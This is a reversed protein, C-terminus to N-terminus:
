EVYNSVTEEVSCYQQILERNTPTDLWGLYRRSFNAPLDAIPIIKVGDSIAAKVADSDTKYINSSDDRQVELMGTGEYDVVLYGSKKKVVRRAMRNDGGQKERPEMTHRCWM